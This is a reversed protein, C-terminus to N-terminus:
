PWRKSQDAEEAAKRRAAAAEREKVRAHFTDLKRQLLEQQSYLHRKQAELVAIKEEVPAELIRNKEQIKPCM